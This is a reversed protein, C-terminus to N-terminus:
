AMSYMDAKLWPSVLRWYVIYLIIVIATIISYVIIIVPIIWGFIRLLLIAQYNMLSHIVAMVIYIIVGM